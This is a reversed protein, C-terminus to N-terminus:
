NLKQLSGLRHVREIFLDDSDIGMEDWLFNRLLETCNESRSEALGHFLLHHRRSRAEIDISKYALVKLLQDKGINQKEISDVRTQVTSLTQAISAIAQSSRELNDLKNCIFSLKSELNSYPFDSQGDGTNFRRRKRAMDLEMQEATPGSGNQTNMSCEVWENLPGFPAFRNQTPITYLENQGSYTRNAGSEAVRISYQDQM